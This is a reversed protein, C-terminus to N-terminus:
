RKNVTLTKGPVEYAFGGPLSLSRPHFRLGRCRLDYIIPPPTVTAPPHGRSRWGRRRRPREFGIWSEGQNVAYSSDTTSIQIAEPTPM